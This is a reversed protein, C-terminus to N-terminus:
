NPRYYHCHNDSQQLMPQGWSGVLLSNEGNAGDGGRLPVLAAATQKVFLCKPPRARKLEVRRGVRAAAEGREAPAPRRWHAWAKVKLERM